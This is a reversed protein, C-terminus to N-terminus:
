QLAFSVPWIHAGCTPKFMEFRKQRAQLVGKFIGFDALDHNVPGAINPDLPGPAQRRIFRRVQVLRREQPGSDM